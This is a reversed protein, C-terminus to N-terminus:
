RLYRKKVMNPVYFILQLVTELMEVQKLEGSCMSCKYTLRQITTHKLTGDFM